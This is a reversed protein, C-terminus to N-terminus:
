DAVVRVVVSMYWHWRKDDGDGNGNGTTRDKKPMLLSVLFLLCLESSDASVHVVHRIAIHGPDAFVEEADVEADETASTIHSGLRHWCFLNETAWSCLFCYCHNCYRDLLLSLPMKWHSPSTSAVQEIALYYCRHLRTERSAM